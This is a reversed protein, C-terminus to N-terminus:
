SRTNENYHRFVLVHNDTIATFMCLYVYINCWCLYKDLECLYNVALIKVIMVFCLSMTTQLILLCMSIHLATIDVCMITKNYVWSCRSNLWSVCAFTIIVHILCSVINILELRFLVLQWVWTNILESIAINVFCFSIPNGSYLQCHQRFM